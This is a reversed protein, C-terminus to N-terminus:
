TKYHVKCSVGHPLYQCNEWQTPSSVWLPPKGPPATSFFRGALAPSVPSVPNVGPYPLYRPTPFPLGSCHEQRSIGHVLPRCDMPNWLTLCWQACVCRLLSLPALHGGWCELARTSGEKTALVATMRDTCDNGEQPHSTVRPQHVFIPLVPGERLLSLDWPFLLSIVTWWLM